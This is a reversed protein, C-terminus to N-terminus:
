REGGGCLGLPDEEEMYYSVVTDWGRQGFIGTIREGFVRFARSETCFHGGDILSLGRERCVLVHHHGVDGTLLLDAGRKSALPALGGGSGGVVAVRHISKERDGVIRLGGACLVVSVKRAFVELSPAGPLEGIRGPGAGAYGPHEQLVQVDQLGLLDCLIDNIGGTCADLNTHLSVIAVGTQFARALVSGPYTELFVHRLPEFLLPHHTLLLNAGRASAWELADLTPDLALVVNGIRAGLAGVQLGPNDWPEALSAPALEEFLALVQALSPIM